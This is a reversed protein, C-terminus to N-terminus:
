IMFFIRRENLPEPLNVRYDHRQTKRNNRYEKTEINPKLFALYELIKFVQFM